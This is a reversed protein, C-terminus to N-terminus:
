APLMGNDCAMGSVAQGGKGRDKAQQFHDLARDPRTTKNQSPKIRVMISATPTASATNGMVAARGRGLRRQFAPSSENSLLTRRHKDCM